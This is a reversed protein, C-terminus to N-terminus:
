SKNHWESTCETIRSPKEHITLRSDYIFYSVVSSECSV